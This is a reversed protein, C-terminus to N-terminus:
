SVLYGTRIARRKRRPVSPANALKWEDFFKPLTGDAGYKFQEFEGVGVMGGAAVLALLQYLCGGDLADKLTFALVQRRELTALERASNM